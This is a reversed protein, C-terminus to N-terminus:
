YERIPEEYVIGGGRKRVTLVDSNTNYTGSYGGRDSTSGEYYLEGNNPNEEYEYEVFVDPNKVQVEGGGSMIGDDQYYGNQFVYNNPDSWSGGRGGGGGGQGGGGGGQGGGGTGGGQRDQYRDRAQQREAPSADEWRSRAQQRQAPTTNRLRERQAPTLQDMRPDRGGGSGGGGQGGGGYGGGGGRIAPSPTYTSDTVGTGSDRNSTTAVTMTGGSGGTGTEQALRDGAMRSRAM